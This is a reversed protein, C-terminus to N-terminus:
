PQNLSHFRVQNVAMRAEYNDVCSLVLNVPAGDIGTKILVDFM